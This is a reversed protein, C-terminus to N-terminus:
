DDLGDHADEKLADYEAETLCQGCELPNPVLPVLCLTLCDDRLICQCLDLNYEYQPPCYQPDKPGDDQTGLLCDPGLEHNFISLYEEESICTPGNLPNEVPTNIDIKSCHGLEFLQDDEYLCRCADKDFEYFFFAPGDPNM